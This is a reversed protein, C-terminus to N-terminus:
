LNVHRAVSSCGASTTPRVQAARFWELATADDVPSFDEYFQGVAYFDAPALLCIVADCHRSVERLRNRAAVPAAVILERPRQARVAKLAAIMTAGTAIGDDTLIVSRGTVPAAPRVSRFLRKRRALDALQHRCEEALYENLQASPTEPWAEDFYVAGTETIAGLAVEPMDPARLKRALIVDLEAGLERALVAGTVVGGRPIALVLPDHLDRGKFEAALRVAADTRDRFQLRSRADKHERARGGPARDPDLHRTFWDGALQAVAELTGPETFLHSAGPIVVLQKPCQLQALAQENFQLVADDNGGVLLLTPAAVMALHHPALDPRGGRCVVAGIRDPQRAAAVLAAAAGTSAGFYGPTLNRTEAQDHLWHTAYQLRGALLTIDFRKEQNEAEDAELLDLLLTALGRQLLQRAVSQNRPSHRGSGSGHAFLVVGQAGVPVTLVGCLPQLGAAIVVEKEELPNATKHM